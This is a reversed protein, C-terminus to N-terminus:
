HLCGSRWVAARRLWHLLCRIAWTSLIRPLHFPRLHLYLCLKLPPLFPLLPVLPLRHYRQNQHQLPPQQQTSSPNLKLPESQVFLLLPALIHSGAIQLTNSPCGNTKFMFQLNCYFVQKRATSAKAAHHQDFYMTQCKLPNRSIAQLHFIIIVALHTAALAKSDANRWAREQLPPLNLSLPLRSLPAVRLVVVTLVAAALLLLPQRPPPPSASPPPLLQMPMSPRSSLLLLPPSQNPRHTRNFISRKYVRRCECVIWM